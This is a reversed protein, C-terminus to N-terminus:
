KDEEKEDEETKAPAEEKDAVKKLIIQREEELENNATKLQESLKSIKEPDVETTENKILEDYKGAEVELGAEVPSMGEVLVGMPVCSGIVSRMSAKLSNTLLSSSKMRAIKIVQEIALNGVKEVHPLSSGKKINLEKKILESVPPTGVEIEFEKTETDVSVTVPVKMGAFDKTQNNIEGLIDQINVGLPGFSQGMQPGPSAKGGEIMIEVIEKSM